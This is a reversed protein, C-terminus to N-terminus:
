KGQPARTRITGCAIEVQKSTAFATDLPDFLDESVNAGNLDLRVAKAKRGLSHFRIIDALIALIAAHPNNQDGVQLLGSDLNLHVDAKPVCNSWRRFIDFEGCNKLKRSRMQSSITPLRDHRLLKLRHTDGFSILGNPHTGFLETDPAFWSRLM